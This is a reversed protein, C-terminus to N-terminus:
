PNDARVLDLNRFVVEGDCLETLRGSLETTEPLNSNEMAAEYSPFRVVQVLTGPRDRDTCMLGLTATRKGETRALWEDLVAMVEDVRSTPFEIIQVFEPM